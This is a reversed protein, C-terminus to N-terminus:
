ISPTDPQWPEDEIGNKGDKTYPFVKKEPLLTNSYGKVWFVYESLMNDNVMLNM